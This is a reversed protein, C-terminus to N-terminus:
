YQETQSLQYMWCLLTVRQCKYGNKPIHRHECCKETVQLEMYKCVIWHSNGAVKNHIDTYESLALITYGAVIHTIHQEAKYCKQM